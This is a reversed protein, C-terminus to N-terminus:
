RRARRLRHDTLGPLGLGAFDLGYSAGGHVNMKAMLILGAPTLWGSPIAATASAARPPRYGGYHYGTSGSSQQYAVKFLISIGSIAPPWVGSATVTDPTRPM